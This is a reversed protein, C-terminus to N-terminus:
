GFRQNLFGKIEDSEYLWQEGGRYDKILLCPVKVNGGGALLAERHVSDHQADRLEINLGLRAIEKRVKICFPCARFQYLALDSTAENVAAQEEPSRSMAKPTSLKEMILMIPTLVLRLLRFFGRIIMRMTFGIFNLFGFSIVGGWGPDSGLVNRGGLHVQTQGADTNLISKYALSFADRM